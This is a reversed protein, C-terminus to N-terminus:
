MEMDNHAAREPHVNSDENCQTYQDANVAQRETSPMAAFQMVFFNSSHPKPSFEGM